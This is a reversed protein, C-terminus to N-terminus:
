CGMGAARRPACRQGKIQLGLGLGGMAAAFQPARRQVKPAQQLASVAAAQTSATSVEFNSLKRSRTHAPHHKLPCTCAARLYAAVAALAVDPVHKVIPGRRSALAVPARRGFRVCQTRCTDDCSLARLSCPKQHYHQSTLHHPATHIAVRHQELRCHRLVLDPPGAPLRQQHSMVASYQQNQTGINSHRHKCNSRPHHQSTLMMTVLCPLLM